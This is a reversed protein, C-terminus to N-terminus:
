AEEGGEAEAPEAPNALRGADGSAPGPGGDVADTPGGTAGTPPAVPDQRYGELRGHLQALSDAKVAFLLSPLLRLPTSPDTPDGGMVVILEFRGLLNLADKLAKRDLPRTRLRLNLYKDQLAQVTTVVDSTLNLRKRGEEYILRLILLVLSQTLDLGLRASADPPLAQAVGFAPDLRLGWGAVELYQRVLAQHRELFYFDRRTEEKAKVLFSRTLLHNLVRRLDKKERNGMAEFAELWSAGAGTNTDVTAAAAEVTSNLNRELSDPM